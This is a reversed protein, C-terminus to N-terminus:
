FLSLLCLFLRKSRYVRSVYHHPESWKIDTERLIILLKILLFM